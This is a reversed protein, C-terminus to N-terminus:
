CIAALSVQRESEAAFGVVMTGDHDKCVQPLHGNSFESRISYVPLARRLGGFHSVRHSSSFVAIRASASPRPFSGLKVTRSLGCTAM